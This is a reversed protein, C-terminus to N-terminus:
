LREAEADVQRRYERISEEFAELSPHDKWTGALAMWPHIEGPVAVTLQVLEARSMQERLLRELRDLAQKRTAGEAVIRAPSLSTARYGNTPLPEILVPVDM